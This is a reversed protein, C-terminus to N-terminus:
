QARPIHEQVSADKPDDRFQPDGKACLWRQSNDVVGMLQCDFKILNNSVRQGDAMGKVGNLKLPM